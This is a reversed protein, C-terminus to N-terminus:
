DNKISYGFPIIGNAISEWHSIVDPHTYKTYDKLNKKAQKQIMFWKGSSVTKEFKEVYQPYLMDDYNVIKLGCKNGSYLWGTIFDWMVFNAQSYTIEFVRTFYWATALAAQSIAIPAVGYDFKCEKVEKLFNVLDEFSKIEKRDSELKDRVEFENM